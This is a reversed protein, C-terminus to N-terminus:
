VITALKKWVTRIVSWVVVYVSSILGFFLATTAFTTPHAGPDVFRDSVDVLLGLPNTVIDWSNWRLYRGLYIAFSSAAIAIIICGWAAFGKMFRRLWLHIILMSALGLGIGALSFSVIMVADFLRAADGKVDLHVLDSLIYFTNPLFLVWLGLWIMPRMGIGKHASHVVKWAFYAPVWALFLNWVLFGFRSTDTNIIRVTLLCICFCSFFALGKLVAVYLQEAVTKSVNTKKM